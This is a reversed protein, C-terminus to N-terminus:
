HNAIAKDEAETELRDKSQNVAKSKTSTLGDIRSIITPMMLERLELLNPLVFLFILQLYHM